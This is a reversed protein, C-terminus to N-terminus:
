GCTKGRRELDCGWPAIDDPHQYGVPATGLKEAYDKNLYITKGGIVTMKPMITPIQDIPITLYDKDLVVFDALKGVELTGLLDEKMVYESAWTTWMKLVTVRDIKQDALLPKSRSACCGRRAPM